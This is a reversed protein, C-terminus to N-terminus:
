GKGCVGPTKLQFLAVDPFGYKGTIAGLDGPFEGEMQDSPTPPTRIDEPWPASRAGPADTGRSQRLEDGIPWMVYTPRACSVEDLEENVPVSPDTHPNPPLWPIVEREQEYLYLYTRGAMEVPYLYGSIPGYIAANKPINQRVFATLNATSRRNWTLLVASLPRAAQFVLALLAVGVLAAAPAGSKTESVTGWDLWCMLAVLVPTLWYSSLGLAGRTLLLMLLLNTVAFSALFVRFVFKGRVRLLGPATPRQVSFGRVFM